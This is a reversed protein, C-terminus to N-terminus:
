PNPALQAKVEPSLIQDVLKQKEGDLADRQLYLDSLRELKEGIALM